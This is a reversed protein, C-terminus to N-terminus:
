AWKRESVHKGPRADTRAEVGFPQLVAVMGGDVTIVAVIPLVILKGRRISRPRTERERAKAGNVM